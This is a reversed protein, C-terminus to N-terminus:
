ARGRGSAQPYSRRRRSGPRDSASVDARRSRTGGCRSPWKRKPMPNPRSFRASRFSRMLTAACTCSAFESPQCFPKVLTVGPAGCLEAALLHCLLYTKIAADAIGITHYVCRAGAGQPSAAAVFMVKWSFLPETARLVPSAHIRRLFHFKRLSAACIAYCDLARAFRLARM